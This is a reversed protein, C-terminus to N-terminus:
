KKSTSATALVLWLPWLSSGGAGMSYLGLVMAAISVYLVSNIIVCATEVKM